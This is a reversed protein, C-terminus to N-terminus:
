LLFYLIEDVIPCTHGSDPTTHAFVHTVSQSRVMFVYKYPHPHSHIDASVGKLVRPKTRLRDKHRPKHQLKHLSKGKFEGVPVVGQM